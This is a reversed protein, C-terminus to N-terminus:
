STSIIDDASQQPNTNAKLASQCISIDGEAEVAMSFNVAVGSFEAGPNHQRSSFFLM